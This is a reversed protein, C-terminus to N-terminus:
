RRAQHCGYTQVPDDHHGDEGGELEEGALGTCIICVVTGLLDLWM